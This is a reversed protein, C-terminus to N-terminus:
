HDSEGSQNGDPIVKKKKKSTDKRKRKKRKKINVSKRFFRNIM